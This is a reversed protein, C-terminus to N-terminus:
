RVRGLVIVLMFNYANQLQEDSASKTTGDFTFVISSWAKSPQRAIFVNENELATVEMPFEAKCFQVDSCFSFIGEETWFISDPAKAPHVDNNSTEKGSDKVSILEFKNLPQVEIWDIFRGVEICVIPLSANSPHEPRRVIERDLETREM